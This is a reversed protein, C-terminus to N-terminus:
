GVNFFPLVTQLCCALLCSMSAGFAHLLSVASRTSTFMLWETTRRISAPFALRRDRLLANSVGLQHSRCDSRSLMSQHMSRIWQLRARSVSTTCLLRPAKYLLM